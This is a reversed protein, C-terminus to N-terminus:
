FYINLAKLVMLKICTEINIHGLDSLIYSPLFDSSSHHGKAPLTSGSCAVRMTVACERTVGKRGDSILGGM